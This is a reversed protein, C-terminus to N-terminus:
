SLYLISAQSARCPADGKVRAGARGVSKTDFRDTRAAASANRLPPKRADYNPNNTSKEKQKYKIWSALLVLQRAGRGAQNKKNALTKCSALLTSECRKAKADRSSRPLPTFFRHSVEASIAAQSEVGGFRHRSTHRTIQDHEGQCGARSRQVCRARRRQPKYTGCRRM